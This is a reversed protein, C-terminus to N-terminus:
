KDKPKPSLFIFFLISFILFTIGVTRRTSENLSTDSVESASESITAGFPISWRKLLDRMDRVRPNSSKQYDISEKITLAQSWLKHYTKLKEHYPTLIQLGLYGEKFLYITKAYFRLSNDALKIKATFSFENEHFDYSPARIWEVDVDKNVDVDSNEDAKFHQYGFWPNSRQTGGQNRQELLARYSCFTTYFFNNNEGRILVSPDANLLSQLITSGSRGAGFVFIYPYKYSM